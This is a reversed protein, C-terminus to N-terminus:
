QKLAAQLARKILMESSIKETEEGKVTRVWHTAEQPKYGLAILASIADDVPSIVGQVLSSIVHPNNQANVTFGELRDRMEIVLREATKKGVGPIKILRTTDAQQISTAFLTLDMASLISLALKAGVGNVRILERFMRREADSIFGVLHHADERILLHTFLNVPQNLEPLKYFTSMPAEVEYGVGQVDIVLMPPSKELLLGCLRSIM